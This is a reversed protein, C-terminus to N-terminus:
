LAWKIMQKLNLATASLLCHDEAAELGRRLLRDLKHGWKQAAFTGESWIQRKRLARQYMPSDLEMLDERSERWFYNREMRKTRGKGVCQARMPCAACDSRDAYYVWYLGGVSRKLNRLRLTKGGPCTYLDKEEDYIFSPGPVGDRRGGDGARRERRPGKRNLDELAEEEYADLRGWHAGPKEAAEVLHESAPSTNAKVHTSDTAVLRGSALGKRVCQGVAEEVLRRFVKRFSPKRRCLQSITSHDPVRDLLDLGLYWRLAVDTQIRQEIQRESPIDYLYGVLLYKLLVVPDIPPRGYRRSYLKETEQYIFSLDLVMELKWLFHEELVLDEITALRVEESVMGTHVSLNGNGTAQPQSAPELAPQELTTEATPPEAEQREPNETLTPKPSSEEPSAAELAPASETEVQQKAENEPSYELEEPVRYLRAICAEGELQFVPLYFSGSIRQRRVRYQGNEDFFERKPVQISETVTQEDVLVCDELPLYKYYQSQHYAVPMGDQESTPLSGGYVGTGSLNLHVDVTQTSGDRFVAEATIQPNKPIDDTSIAQIGWFLLLGEEMESGELTVSSGCATFNEEFVVLQNEPGAYIASVDEESMGPTIQQQAFFGEETTFTVSQINEGEYRLGMNIYFNEGDCYGGWYDSKELLDEERLVVMGDEDLDLAYTRVTFLSAPQRPLLM